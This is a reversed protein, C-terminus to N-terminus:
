RRQRRQSQGSLHAVLSFESTLLSLCFYVAILLRDTGRNGTSGTAPLLGARKGGSNKAGERNCICEGTIGALEIHVEMQLVICFLVM